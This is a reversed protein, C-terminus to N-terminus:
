LSDRWQECSAWDTGTLVSNQNLLWDLQPKRYKDYFDADGYVCAYSAAIVSVRESGNKGTQWYLEPQLKHWSYLSDKLKEWSASTKPPYTHFGTHVRHYIKAYLSGEFNRPQDEAMSSIAYEQSKFNGGWRPELHNAMAVSLSTHGPWKEISNKYYDFSDQTIGELQLSVRLLLDASVATESMASDPNLLENRTDELASNFLDLRIKETKSSYRNGRFTWAEIYNFMLQAFQAYESDPKAFLWYNLKKKNIEPESVNFLKLYFKSVSETGPDGEPFHVNNEMLCELNHELQDYELSDHSWRLREAAFNVDLYEIQKCMDLDDSKFITQANIPMSIPAVLLMLVTFKSKTLVLKMCLKADHLIDM